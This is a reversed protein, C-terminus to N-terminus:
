MPMTRALTPVQCGLWILHAFRAVVLRRFFDGTVKALATVFDRRCADSVLSPVPRAFWNPERGLSGVYVFGVGKLKRCSKRGRLPPMIRNELDSASLAVRPAHKETKRRKPM